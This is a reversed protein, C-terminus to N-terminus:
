RKSSRALRRAVNFEKDINEKQDALRGVDVWALYRNDIVSHGFLEAAMQLLRTDGTVHILAILRLFPMSHDERGQSAYTDLMNKTVSEGLWVSMEQAINERNGECDKLTEAVARSIKSRLDVSRMREPDFQKVLEAPEWGLLDNTKFDHRDRVM